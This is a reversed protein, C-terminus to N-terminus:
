IHILSLKHQSKIEKKGSTGHDAMRLERTQAIKGQSSFIGKLNEIKEKTIRGQNFIIDQAEISFFYNLSLNEM